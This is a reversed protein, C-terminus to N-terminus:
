RVNLLAAAQLHLGAVVTHEYTSSTTPVLQSAPGSSSSSSSSSPVCQHATTATQELATAKSEEEHLLHTDQVLRYTATAQAEAAKVITELQAHLGTAETDNPM